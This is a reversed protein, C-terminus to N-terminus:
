MKFVICVTDICVNVLIMLLCYFSHWKWRNTLSRKHLTRTRLALQTSWITGTEHSAFSQVHECKEDNWHDDRLQHVWNYDSYGRQTSGINDYKWPLGERQPIGVLYFQCTASWSVQCTRSFARSANDNQWEHHSLNSM